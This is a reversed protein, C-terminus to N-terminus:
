FTRASPTNLCRKDLTLKQNPMFIDYLNCLPLKFLFSEICSVFVLWCPLLVGYHYHVQGTEKRIIYCRTNWNLGQEKLM